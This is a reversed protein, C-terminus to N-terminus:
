DDVLQHQRQTRRAADRRAHYQERVGSASVMGVQGLTVDVIARRTFRVYEACSRLDGAGRRQVVVRMPVVFVPSIKLLHADAVRYAVREARVALWEMVRRFRLALTVSQRLEPVSKPPEPFAHKRSRADSFPYREHRHFNM